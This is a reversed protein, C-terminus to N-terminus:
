RASFRSFVRCRADHLRNSCIIHLGSPPPAPGLNPPGYWSISHDSRLAQFSLEVRCVGGHVPFSGVPVRLCFPLAFFRWAFLHSKVCWSSFTNFSVQKTRWIPPVGFHCRPGTRKGKFWGLPVGQFFSGRGDKATGFSNGGSSADM